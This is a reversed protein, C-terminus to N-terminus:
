HYLSLPFLLEYWDLAIVIRYHPHYTDHFAPSHHVAACLAAAERLDAELETDQWEPVTKLAIREIRRWEMKWVWPKHLPLTSKHDSACLFAQLLLEEEEAPDDANLVCALSKRTYIHRWGCPEYEPMLMASDQAAQELEYHLYQAAAASDPTMHEAGWFDQFCTKYVDQLTAAPYTDHVYHVMKHIRHQDVIYKVPFSLIIIVLVIGLGAFIKKNEKKM